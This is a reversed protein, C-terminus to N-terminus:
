NTKNNDIFDFYYKKAIIRFVDVPIFKLACFRNILLLTITNRFRNEAIKKNRALYYDCENINYHEIAFNQLYYNNHINQCLYNVENINLALFNLCSFSKIKSQLIFPMIININDSQYKNSSDIFTFMQLNSNKILGGLHMFTEKEFKIKKFKLSVINNNKMFDFITSLYNNAWIIKDDIEVEDRLTYFEINKALTVVMHYKVGKGNLKFNDLQERIPPGYIYVELDM